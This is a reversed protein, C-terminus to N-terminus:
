GIVGTEEVLDVERLIESWRREKEAQIHKEAFDIYNLFDGYEDLLVKPITGKVEVM